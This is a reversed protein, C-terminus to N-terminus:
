AGQGAAEAKKLDRVLKDFEEKFKAASEWEGFDPIYYERIERALDRGTDADFCEWAKLEEYSIKVRVPFLVRREEARERNCAKIIETKVWESGISNPSLILLLREHKRIAVDIQEHLKEGRKVDHPAFWCRVGKAQLDAYLREAFLEDKGSYSIFCSYFQIAGGMARIFAILEDSVGAGRLFVDPIKGKSLQITDIGITSPGQHKVTELGIALSLDVAVFHTQFIHSGAFNTRAVETHSFQTYNLIANSLNARKLEAHGFDAESLYSRSLDTDNLDAGGFYAQYLNADGLDCKNVNAGGLNIKALMMGSLKAETFDPVTHPNDKRWENWAEVGKELIKLHEENAM